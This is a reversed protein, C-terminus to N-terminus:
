EQRWETRAVAPDLVPGTPILNLVTTPVSTPRVGGYGLSGAVDAKPVPFKMGLDTILYLAGASVGPAAQATVLAGGSPPVSVRDAAGVVAPQDRAAVPVAFAPTTVLRAEAGQAASFTLRTCLVRDANALADLPSPPSPPYGETVSRTSSMPARSVDGPKVPVAAPTKGPYAAAVAPDALLLAADTASTPSLGDSRVVFLDKVGTETESVLVQGVLSKTSGVIPGPQGVGSPVRAGLDPGSTLTNLWASNVPVPRASSFGLAFLASAQTIKLRENRWVLYLDGDSAVLAAQGDPVAQVPLAGDLSLVTAPSAKGNEDRRVTNCAQWPGGSLASSAPLADPAGPIGVPTGHRVGNLSARSVTDVKGQRGTALLASSYNLAPRLTGDLFVYRNGTEKEVIITGAERWSNSGGGKILGVVAFGAVILVALIVGVVTGTTARRMPTDPADPEARVLASVLRAAMYRYAHLQDRKNQM